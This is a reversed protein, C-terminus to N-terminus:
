PARPPEAIRFFWVEVRAALDGDRIEYKRRFAERLIQLLAPEDVRTARGAARRATGDAGRVRVVVRPDARVFGPWRKGPNLFDASVYLVGDHVVFWTTVSWPADTRTELELTEGQAWAAWDFPPSVLRGSRLAGGPLPGIPGDHIRTWAMLAVAAFLLSLALRLAVVRLLTM